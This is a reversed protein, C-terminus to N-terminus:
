REAEACAARLDAEAEPALPWGNLYARWVGGERWLEVVGLGAEAGHDRRSEPLVVPVDLYVPLGQALDLPASEPLDAPVVARGRVDVGPRYAVDPAPEHAILRACDAARVRLTVIEAAAGLPLPILPVLLGLAARTYNIM